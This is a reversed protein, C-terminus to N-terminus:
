AKEREENEQAAVEMEDAAKEEVSPLKKEYM